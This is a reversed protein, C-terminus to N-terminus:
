GNRVHLERVPEEGTPYRDGLFELVGPLSERMRSTAMRNRGFHQFTFTLSFDPHNL